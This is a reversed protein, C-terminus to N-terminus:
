DRPFGAALRIEFSHHVGISFPLKGPERVECRDNHQPDGMLATAFAGRQVALRLVGAALSPGIGNPNAARDFTLPTCSGTAFDTAFDRMASMPKGAFFLRRLPRRM